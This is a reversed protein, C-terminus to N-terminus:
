SRKISELLKRYGKTNLLENAFINAITLLDVIGCQSEQMRLMPGSDTNTVPHVEIVSIHWLPSALM